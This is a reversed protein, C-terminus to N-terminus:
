NLRKVRWLRLLAFGFFMGGLHAWHAVNDYDSGHVGGFLEVLGYIIVFWKAKIPIPPFLLFIRMNPFLMGFALLVGFVAGSAGVTVRANVYMQQYNQAFSRALAEAAAPDSSVTSNYSSVFSSIAAASDSSFPLAHTALFAQINDTAPDNLLADVAAVIPRLDIAYAAEQVLGSGVGCVLYYVVFRRSGLASEIATGFMWLAFMNFFLHSVGGHMFMFSVPQWFRFDQAAFYHLGLIDNLDLALSREFVVLAAFCLINIILLNKVAPTM